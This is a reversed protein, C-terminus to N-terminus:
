MVGALNGSLTSITVENKGLEEVMDNHANLVNASYFLLRGDKYVWENKNKQLLELIQIMKKGYAVHAQMLPEFFPKQSFYKNTAGKMAENAIENGEGLVSLRKELNPVMNAFFENYAKTKEVYLTLINKQHRFEEDSTLLSYDLIRPSLVAKYSEYWDQVNIQTEAVFENMIRYYQREPGISTKSLRDFESKVSNAFENHAKGFEEPDDTNSIKRKFKEKQEHIAILEQFQLSKNVFQGIQGLLTLTLVINFTLNSGKENRGSLRWVIWAFLSPFLLLCFVRGSFDGIQYLTKESFAVFLAFYLLSIVGFYIKNSKSLSFEQKM